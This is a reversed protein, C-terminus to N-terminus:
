LQLSPCIAIALMGSLMYPMNPDLGEVARQAGGVFFVTDIPSLFLWKYGERQEQLLKHALFAGLALRTDSRQGTRRRDEPDDPYFAIREKAPLFRYESPDVEHDTLVITRIGQM